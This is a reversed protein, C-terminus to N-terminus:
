IVLGGARIVKNALAKSVFEAGKGGARAYVMSALSEWRRARQIEIDSAGLGLLQPAGGLGAQTSLM